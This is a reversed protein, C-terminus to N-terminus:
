ADDDEELEKLGIEPRSPIVRPAATLIEEIEDVIVLPVAGALADWDIDHQRVDVKINRERGWRDPFKRELWWEAHKANIKAARVVLGVMLIEASQEAELLAHWFEKFVGSKAKRGRQCWRRFTRLPVGAWRAAVDRYNGARIATFIKEQKEPTLTAPRGVPRAPVGAFRNAPTHGNREHTKSM